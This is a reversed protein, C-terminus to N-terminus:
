RRKSRSPAIQRYEAELIVEFHREDQACVWTAHWPLELTHPAGATTMRDHFFMTGNCGAVTCAKAPHEYDIARSM